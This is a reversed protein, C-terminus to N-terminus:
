RARIHAPRSLQRVHPRAGTGDAIYVGRWDGRRARDRFGDRLLKGRNRTRNDNVYESLRIRLSETKDAPVNAYADTPKRTRAALATVCSVLVFAVVRKM